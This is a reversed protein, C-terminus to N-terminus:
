VGCHGTCEDQWLWLQGRDTDNRFDVESLPRLSRHLYPVATM